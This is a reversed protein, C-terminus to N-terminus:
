VRSPTDSPRRRALSQDFDLYKIIARRRRALGLLAAGVGFLSLTAPEPVSCPVLGGSPTPCVSTATVTGSSFDVSDAGFDNYCTGFAIGCVFAISPSYSGPPIVGNPPGCGVATDFLDNPDVYVYNGVACGLPGPNTISTIGSPFSGSVSATLTGGVYSQTSNDWDFSENLIATCLATGSAGCLYNGDATVNTLTVQVIADARAAEPASSALSLAILTAAPLRSSIRDSYKM